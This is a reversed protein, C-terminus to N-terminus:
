LMHTIDPNQWYDHLGVVFVCLVWQKIKKQVSSMTFSLLCGGIFLSSSFLHVISKKSICMTKDHWCLWFYTHQPASHFCLRYKLIVPSIAKLVAHPFTIPYSQQQCAYPVIILWWVICIPYLVSYVVRSLFTSSSCTIFVILTLSLLLGTCM